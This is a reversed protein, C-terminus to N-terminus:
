KPLGNQQEQKSGSLGFHYLIAALAGGFSPGVWYVWHDDWINMVVAPGFSRAPNMSSGTYPIAFLHCTAVSLGIALPASGKVDERNEDCVAFVTFVLVFTIFLEIGFAEAGGVDENVITAGLSKHLAEPTFARLLASGIVAGICQGLIYLLCRILGIKGTVLMGISVAPNIHGGSIHCICQVMTAVTVGFALAIQLLDDPENWSICSGCGVLVLFFTGILEAILSKWLNATTIEKHNLFKDLFSKSSMTCHPSTISLFEKLYTQVEEKTLLEVTSVPKPASLVLHYLVAAAIGGLNPGVWYVWHGNWINMIVAPGLSRAPNMSSGTYPLAFLHCTAVSLGIALPASGKVDTRNPDCVAFVTFVLVFTIFFEVGFAELESINRNFLTSGLTKHLSDPTFARLLAAGVIAGGCQCLIYFFYRLLSIRGTVLMGISVAPNIHGGSVHCICQVMTAVTVGFALAIQVLDATISWGICSGCGVLVLFFTGIFEAILSKWINAKKLENCGLFKIIATKVRSGM